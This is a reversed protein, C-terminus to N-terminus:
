STLSQNNSRIIYCKWIWALNTSKKIIDNRLLSPSYQAVIGLMRELILCKQVATKRVAAEVTDDDDTYGRNAVSVSKKQWTAELYPSFENNLSLYYQINSQWNAFSTISETETLVWPRPPRFTTAM